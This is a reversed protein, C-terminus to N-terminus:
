QPVSFIFCFHTCDWPGRSFFRLQILMVMIPTGSFSSLFFSSPSFISVTVAMLKGLMLFIFLYIFVSMWTWFAWFTGYLIFGLLICFCMNILNVFIWSLFLINFAVLLFWCTGSLPIGMNNVASKKASVQLGSSLLVIYKGPHYPFIQLGSHDIALHENLNSSSILLKVSLCFSLSNLM